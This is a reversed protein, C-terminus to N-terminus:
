DHKAAQSINPQFFPASPYESLKAGLDHLANQHTANLRQQESFQVNRLQGDANFQTEVETFKQLVSNSLATVEKALTHAESKIDELEKGKDARDTISIANQSTVLGKFAQYDADEASHKEVISKLGSIDARNQGIAATLETKTGNDISMFESKLGTSQVTVLQKLAEAQQSNYYTFITFLLAGVVAVTAFNFRKGSELNEIKTRDSRIIDKVPELKDIILKEQRADASERSENAKNLIQTLLNEIRDTKQEMAGFRAELTAIRSIIANVDVAQSGSGYGISRQPM